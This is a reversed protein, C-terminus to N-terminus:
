GAMTGSGGPMSVAQLSEHCNQEIKQNGVKKVAWESELVKAITVTASTAFATAPGASLHTIAAMLPEQNLNAGWECDRGLNM